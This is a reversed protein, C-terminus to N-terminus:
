DNELLDELNKGFNELVIFMQNNLHKNEEKKKGRLVDNM